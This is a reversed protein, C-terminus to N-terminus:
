YVGQSFFAGFWLKGVEKNTDDCFVELFAVFGDM